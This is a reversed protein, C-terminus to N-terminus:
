SSAKGKSSSPITSETRLALVTSTANFFSQSRKNSGRSGMFVVFVGACVSLLLKSLDLLCSFFFTFATFSLVFAFWARKPVVM